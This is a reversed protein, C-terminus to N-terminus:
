FAAVVLSLPVSTLAEGVRCSNANCNRLGAGRIVSCDVGTEMRAKKSPLFDPEAAAKGRRKRSHRDTSVPCRNEKDGKGKACSAYGPKSEVEPPQSDLPLACQPASTEVQVSSTDMQEETSPQEQVCHVTALQGESESVLRATHYIDRATRMVLSLLLSRHLRLGGRQSRSSYLKGLSLTMIRRAEASVDM